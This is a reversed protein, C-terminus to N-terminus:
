QGSVEKVRKLQAKESIKENPTLVKLAKWPRYSLVM